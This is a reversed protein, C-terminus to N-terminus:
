RASESVVGDTRAHVWDRSGDVYLERKWIPVRQKLQEVVYRCADLAPARHAHAAAIVVSADGIALTGVRHEVALAVGAFAATAELLIADLERAAMGSYASYEIGLVARGANTDRVIGIFLTVAGADSSSVESQLAAVDIPREVVAARSM